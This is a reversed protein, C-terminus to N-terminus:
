LLEGEAEGGRGVAPKQSDLWDLCANIYRPPDQLWKEASETTMLEGRHDAYREWDEASVPSNGLIQWWQGLHDAKLDAPASEEAMPKKAEFPSKIPTVNIPEDGVEGEPVEQGTIHQYLWARAKRTAKGVIADAGMGQNVRVCVDITKQGSKGKYTWGVEMPQIAGQGAMKPIGPTISYGLGEIGSLKRGMGEKTIYCRGAIINFENGVHYCGQMAADISCDRVVDTPYGGSSDKDTRFGLSTGQLSMISDMVGPADMARRLDQMAGAVALARSMRGAMTQAAIGREVANDLAEIVAADVKVVENKKTAM